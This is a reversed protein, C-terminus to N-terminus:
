LIEHHSKTVLNREIIEHFLYIKFHYFGEVFFRWALKSRILDIQCSLEKGYYFASM